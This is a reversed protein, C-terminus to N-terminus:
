EYTALSSKYLELCKDLVEKKSCNCDLQEVFESFATEVDISLKKIEKTDSQAEDLVNFETRLQLAGYQSLKTTLLDLTLPDVKKDVYISVINNKLLDPLNEHKKELLDNIKLRHHQPSIDNICFNISLDDMDIITAGKLQGRDGFDMEYPAGLYLIFGNDYTRYQRSHFHGSIIAKSKTFLEEPSIGEECVKNGSMKFNIIDFHGVIIDITQTQDLDTLVNTKWPCLAITRENVEILVPKSFVRINTNELIEASNIEVTSSLFSDHNGPIIYINYEKLEDFFRKAVHLTNVGVEHRDHFVDGAFIITDLNFKVMTHKLWKSVGLAIEHWTRSNQHVGLHLDSFFLIKNNKPNIKLIDM